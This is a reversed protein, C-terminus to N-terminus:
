GLVTDIKLSENEIGDLGKNVSKFGLQLQANLESIAQLIEKNDAM